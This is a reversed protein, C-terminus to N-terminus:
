IMARTIDAIGQLIPYIQQPVVANGLQKLRDVRGKESGITRAVGPWEAVWRGQCAALIVWDTEECSLSIWAAQLTDSPYQLSFAQIFSKWLRQM